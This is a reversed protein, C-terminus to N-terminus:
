TEDINVDKEGCGSVMNLYHGNQSSSSEEKLSRKGM